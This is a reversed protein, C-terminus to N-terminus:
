YGTKFLFKTHAWAIDNPAIETILKERWKMWLENPTRGQDIERLRREFEAHREVKEQPSARSCYNSNDKFSTAQTMVEPIFYGGFRSPVAHNPFYDCQPGLDFAFGGVAYLLRKLFVASYGAVFNEGKLFGELFESCDIRGEKQCCGLTTFYEGDEFVLNTKAWVIGIGPYEKFKNVCQSIFDNRLIFDDSALGYVVDGTAMDCCLKFAVPFGLNELCYIPKIKKHKSSYEKIIDVSEDKSGDDVIIIELEEHDQALASDLCRALYKGYNHNPILISAMM